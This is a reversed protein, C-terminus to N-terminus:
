RRRPNKLATFEGEHLWDAEVGVAEGVGQADVGGPRGVLLHLMDRQILQITLIHRVECRQIHRAVVRVRISDGAQLAELLGNGVQLYGQFNTPDLDIIQQGKAMSQEFDRVQYLSWATLTMQYRCM